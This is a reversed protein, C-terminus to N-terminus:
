SEALAAQPDISERFSKLRARLSGDVVRDGIQTVVGGLLAADVSCSMVIKKGTAKELEAKLKAVAADSLPAASTVFAREVRESEDVLRSLHRAVHPLAALRRNQMIIRLSSQGMESVGLRKAVDVLVAERTEEPVLPNVLVDRLELSGEFTEAFAAMERALAPATKTELGIDFIALAYRHGVAEQSM